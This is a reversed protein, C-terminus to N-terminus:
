QEEVSLTEMTPNIIINHSVDSHYMSGAM